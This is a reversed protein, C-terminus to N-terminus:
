SPPWNKNVVEFLSNNALSPVGVHSFSFRAFSIASSSILKIFNDLQEVLVM